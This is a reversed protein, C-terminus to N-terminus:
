LIDDGEEADEDAEGASQALELQREIHMNVRAAIWNSPAAFGQPVGNSTEAVMRAGWSSAAFAPDWDPSAIIEQACKQYGPTGVVDRYRRFIWSDDLCYDIRPVFRSKSPEFPEPYISSHDGYIAVADGGIQAHLDREEIDLTGSEEGYASVSRPFSSAIVAIRAEADVNRLASILLRAETERPAVAGRIYGFDLVFLVNNVDDVASLASQLSSLDHSGNRSRIVVVGYDNEIAIVQRIFNRATGGPRMLAVPIHNGNKPFLGRWAAYNKDPSGFEAHNSCTQYSNSHLDVFARPVVERVKELVRPVDDLQGLKGLAVVPLLATRTAESAEKFGKLEAQRSRFVPLYKIRELDDATIM